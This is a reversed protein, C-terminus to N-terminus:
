KVHRGGAVRRHRRALDEELNGATTIDEQTPGLLVMAFAVEPQIGVIM